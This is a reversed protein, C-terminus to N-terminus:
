YNFFGTKSVIRNWLSDKSHADQCFIEVKAALQRVNDRNLILEIPVGHALESDAFKDAFVLPRSAQSAWADLIAGIDLAIGGREKIWQCYVKGCIGAGVLFLMGPFEVDLQDHLENFRRPYHAGPEQDQRDIHKVPVVYTSVQLTFLDSLLNGLDPHSTILGIRNQDSLWRYLFGSTVLDWHLWASVFQTSTRFKVSDLYRHLLALRRCAPYRLNQEVARLRFRKNFEQELIDGKQELFSPNFQVNVIDDRVGLVDASEASVRLDKSLQLLDALTAGIEGFHSILYKFDELHSQESLTLVVAEGDGLRILSLPSRSSLADTVLHAFSAIDLLPFACNPYSSM